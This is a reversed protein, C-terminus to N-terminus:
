YARENQIHWLHAYLGAGNILDNHNGVEIVRGKSLVIIIDADIITSLRHAVVLSTHGKAADKLATLIAQESRSDLSSTAEDFVLFPASKLIARAISVRQKEGGSLKLGREGVKTQWQKPLSAIFDSLHAMSAAHEIEAQTASPRGYRINEYLTDNFLVTDQPVIAIAQRLAQQTFHRIDTGNISICGKNVDYFRFLLKILTSKGAGSDGVVAVKKGLPVEFSIDHLIQREDYQFSVNEFKITGLEPSQQIADDIDVVKPQKDLIDFMREINALAGRIERYVFGLFNLPIFLQMMFANILVFDGISMTKQSVEYAALGMMATMAIAIILAQGANLAFLSLRNKRKAVEWESLASDYRESEHSENNFYKVTEYNLLSDIARTNSLSDARAAERVYETRWETAMVSYGIYAIVSVLTILAFSIGYQFLFIGIVLTIELLTPVINFVMFRMLFSVGSTGREIDRSLGGTRRDLHFDLDLRHLHNFVALGLRRMARETVRGFLTDRIEGIVVNLFRIVGYALVLGIPAAVIATAMSTNDSLTDVMEKLIFPLGVSALKAVVLCAMALVIRGKFELLYPWLMSLVQWNLKGVPGEFYASPRM